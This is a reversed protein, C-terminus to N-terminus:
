VLAPREHQATLIVDDLPVDQGLYVVNFGQQRLMVAFILAGVEHRENPACGVFIMPKEPHRTYAHLLTLLRGLLYASAYHGTGIFIEGRHWAEGIEVLAAAIIEVFVTPMTYTSFAQELIEDAREDDLAALAEVLPQVLSAPALPVDQRVPQPHDDDDVWL